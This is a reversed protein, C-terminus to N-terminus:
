GAEIVGINGLKASSELELVPQHHDHLEDFADSQIFPPAFCWDRDILHNAVRHLNQRGQAIRVALSYGVAVDLRGVDHDRRMAQDLEHVEAYGLGGVIQLKGPGPVVM